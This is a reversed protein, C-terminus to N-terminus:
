KVAQHRLAQVFDQLSQEVNGSDTDRNEGTKLSKEMKKYLAIKLRLDKITNNYQSLAETYKNRIAPDMHPNMLILGMHTKVIEAEELTCKLKEIDVMDEDLTAM